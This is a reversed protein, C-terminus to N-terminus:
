NTGIELPTVVNPSSISKCIDPKRVNTSVCALYTLTGFKKQYYTTDEYSGNREDECQADSADVTSTQVRGMFLFDCVYEYFSHLTLPSCALLMLRGFFVLARPVYTSLMFM